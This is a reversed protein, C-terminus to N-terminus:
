IDHALAGFDCHFACDSCQGLKGTTGTTELSFERLIAAQWHAICTVPRPGLIRSWRDFVPGEADSRLEHLDKQAADFAQRLWQRVCERALPRCEATRLVCEEKWM